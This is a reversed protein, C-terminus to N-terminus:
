MSLCKVLHVAVVHEGYEQVHRVGVFPCSHCGRHRIKLFFYMYSMSASRKAGTEADMPQLGVVLRMKALKQRM